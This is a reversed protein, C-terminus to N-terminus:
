RMRMEKLAEEVTANEHVIMKLAKIVGQPNEHQWINRGFVVGAAGADIAGRAVELADKTTAMKPGGLALLPVPSSKVVNRFSDIDGTYKTKILDAGVEACMRIPLKLTEPDIENEKTVGKGLPFTEIILVMGWEECDSAIKGLYEFNSAEIEGDTSSLFFACVADAGMKVGDEVRAIPKTRPREHPLVKRMGSIWDIRLVLAPADRGVFSKHCKKALGPNVMLGDPKGEVMHEIAEETAGLGPLVGVHIGHDITAIVARGSKRNLIRGLRIEKGYLM